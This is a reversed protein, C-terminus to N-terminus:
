PWSTWAVSKLGTDTSQARHSDLSNPTEMVKPTASKLAEARKWSDSLEAKETATFARRNRQNM